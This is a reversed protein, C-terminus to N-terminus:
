GLQTDSSQLIKVAGSMQAQMLQNWASVDTTMVGLGRILSNSGPDTLSKLSSLDNPKLQEEIKNQYVFHVQDGAHLASLPKGGKILLADSALTFTASHVSGSNASLDDITVQNGNITRVTGNLGVAFGYGSRLVGSIVGQQSTEAQIDPFRDNIARDIARTECMALLGAKIQSGSIKSDDIIQYTAHYSYQEPRLPAGKGAPPLAISPCDQVTVSVTNGDSSGIVQTKFLYVATAGATGTILLLGAAVLPSVFHIKKM